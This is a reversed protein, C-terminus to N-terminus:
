PDVFYPTTLLSAKETGRLYTSPWTVFGLHMLAAHDCTPLGEDCGPPHVLGFGHGLEHGLGGIWRGVGFVGFDCHNWSPDTLGRLDHAGLIALGLGGRGLGLQSCRPELIDAFIIWVHSEAGGEIVAGDEVADCEQVAAQTEIWVRPFGGDDYYDHDEAMECPAPISDFLVYTKGGLQEMYWLQLDELAERIAASYDANFPRDNPHAYISRVTFTTESPLPVAAVSFDLSVSLGGADTATITVTATGPAVSLIGFGDGSSLVSIAADTTEGAYSLADGDPDMFYGSGSWERTEGVRVRQAGISDMMVPARNPVTVTFSQQAALGDPDTATVTVPATGKGAVVITVVSGTMAAAAVGPNATSVSYRLADGDPDRFFASVDITTTDGVTLELAPLTGAAVPARNPPLVPATPEGEGGGGGCAVALVAVLLLQSAVRGIPRTM